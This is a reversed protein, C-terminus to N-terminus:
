IPQYKSHADHRVRDINTFSFKAFTCKSLGISQVPNSAHGLRGFEGNLKPLFPALSFQGRIVHNLRQNIMVGAFSPAYRGIRQSHM